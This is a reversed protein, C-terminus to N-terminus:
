LAARLQSITFTEGSVAEDEWRSIRWGGDEERVITLRMLGSYSRPLESELTHVDLTYREQFISSDAWQQESISEFTCQALSDPPLLSVSLLTRIFVDERAAGWTTFFTPDDPYASPLPAYTFDESIVGMYLDPDRLTFSSAILELVEGDSLALNGGGQSGTPPDPDRTSFFGCGSLIFLVVLALPGVRGLTARLESQFVVFPSVM